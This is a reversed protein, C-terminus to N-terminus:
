QAVDGKGYKNTYDVRNEIDILMSAIKRVATFWNELRDFNLRAGSLKGDAAIIDEELKIIEPRTVAWAKRDDNSKLTDMTRATLHAKALEVKLQQKLKALDTDANDVAKGAKWISNPLAALLQRVQADDYNPLAKWDVKEDVVLGANSEAM